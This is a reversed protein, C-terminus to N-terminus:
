VSNTSEAWKRKSEEGLLAKQEKKNKREFTKKDDMKPKKCDTKFHGLKDCNFCRLNDNSENKYNNRNSNSNSHNKRMFKGFKKIFLSMADDNIQEASKASTSSPPEKTTVLEQTTISTSPREENRSNIEFEYTNLDIFHDYLEIKNLDNSKRMTMTKIDCKRPLARMAKIIVERNSYIKRM